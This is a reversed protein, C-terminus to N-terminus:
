KELLNEINSKVVQRFNLEELSLERFEELIDLFRLVLNNNEITKALSPFNHQWARLTRRLSKLKPTLIKAM